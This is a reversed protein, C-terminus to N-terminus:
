IRRVFRIRHEGSGNHDPNYPIGDLDADGPEIQFGMQTHFAISTTNIPSTVCRVVQRQNERAISFFTEYLLRGYARKRFQPHVGVFHIYAEDPQSQSLFGILFAVIQNDEEIIFSTNNFHEFFLCPLMVSVKRGGWWDNLVTIIAPYDSPRINRTHM